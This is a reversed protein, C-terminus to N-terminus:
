NKVTDGPTNGPPPVDRALTLNIASTGTPQEIAWEIPMYGPADCVYDGPPARFTVQGVADTRVSVPAFAWTERILKRLATYAPKPTLDARLLGSPAGLWQGDALDWWTIAEVHPCGYLTTYFDVVENAQRAEGDPTSYWDPLQTHWNNDPHPEGSILSVETWHIPKGFRGLSECVELVRDRGIYGNHMHSQIGIADIPVGAALCQEILQEYNGSWHDFDNLLLIAEPNAQRAATFAEKLIPVVGHQRVLRTMPNPAREHTPTAVAENVVDWMDVLSRFATVERTVRQMQLRHQTDLPMDAVWKPPVNHWCLTHGKPVIGHQRCWTAMGHLRAYAPEGSAREYQGWYFPLTAFNFLDAFRERYRERRADTEGDALGFANSGFLFRDRTQRVTVAVGAAPSGDHQKLSLVIPRARPHPKAAHDEPQMSALDGNPTM